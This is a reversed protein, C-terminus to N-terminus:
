FEGGIGDSLAERNNVKNNVRDALHRLKNTKDAPMSSIINETSSTCSRFASMIICIVM